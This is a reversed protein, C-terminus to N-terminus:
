AERKDAELREGNAQGMAAQGQRVGAELQRAHPGLENSAGNFLNRSIRGDLAWFLRQALSRAVATGLLIGSIFEPCQRVTMSRDACFDPLEKRRTGVSQLDNRLSPPRLCHATDSSRSSITASRRS